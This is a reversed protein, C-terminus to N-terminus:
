RRSCRLDQALATDGQRNADYANKLEDELDDCSIYNKNIRVCAADECCIRGDAYSPMVLRLARNSSSTASAKGRSENFGTVTYIFYKSIAQNRTDKALADLSRLQNVDYAYGSMDMCRMIQEQRIATLINEAETTQRTLFIKNFQPVTVASLIGIVMVVILLETLTFGKKRNQM